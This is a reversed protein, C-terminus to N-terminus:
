WVWQIHSGHFIDILFFDWIALVAYWGLFFFWLLFAFPGPLLPPWYMGVFRSLYLFPRVILPEMWPMLFDTAPDSFPRKDQLRIYIRTLEMVRHNQMIPLMKKMVFKPLPQAFQAILPPPHLLKLPTIVLFYWISSRICAWSLDRIARPFTPRKIKLYEASYLWVFPVIIFRAHAVMAKPTRKDLLIAYMTRLKPTRDVTDQDQIPLTNSEYDLAYEEDASSWAPTGWRQKAEDITPDFQNTPPWTLTRALVPRIPEIRHEWHQPILNRPLPAIFTGDPYLHLGTTMAAYPRTPHNIRSLPDHHILERLAIDLYDTDIGTSPQGQSSTRRSHFLFPTRPRSPMRSAPTRPETRSRGPTPTGARSGTKSGVRSRSGARRPSGQRSLSTRPTANRSAYRSSIIRDRYTLPRVVSVGAQLRDLSSSRRHGHAQGRSYTTTPTLPVSFSPRLQQIPDAEEELPSPTALGESEELINTLNRTSPFPPQAPLSTARPRSGM